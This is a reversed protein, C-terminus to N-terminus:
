VMLVDTVFKVGPYALTILLYAVLVYRAARRGRLGARRHAILLGGVLAFALLSLVTKHDLILLRGTELYEIAVGSLLGVALVVEGATLLGMELREGDAVSPLIRNIAGIRKRKLAREQLVVAFGAVAGLTMLAYTLVAVVIHVRLWGAPAGEALPRGAAQAWITAIVGLAFLYPFLLPTLRWAQDSVASVLIFVVLSAAISVWLAISFGTHWSVGTLSVAWATTGAAAVGLLLWHVTDRRAEGRLHALAAPLLSLLAGINYLLHRSM